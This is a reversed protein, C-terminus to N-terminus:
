YGSLWGRVDDITPMAPSPQPYLMERVREDVGDFRERLAVVQARLVDPEARAADREYALTMMRDARVGLERAQFMLEHDKADVVTRLREIEARLSRGVTAGVTNGDPSRDTETSLRWATEFDMM